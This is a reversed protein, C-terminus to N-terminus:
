CYILGFMKPRGVNKLGAFLGAGLGITGLSGLKSTIKDIINIAGNGFDVIGKVFNSDLIHNAFEQFSAELRKLSYEIGKEYEEQEKLASGTSNVATETARRATDFNSMLASVINGQRKGAILETISAQQIDTLDQWKTALEDLIQYTSKFTDKDKMIDVGSLALIEEQLKATSEAMGDTELGLDEMETKAGRIRMSITKYANGISDPDQVVANAATVLGITEELTNGAAYMSSASRQLAEGIGASNIAETNAVENFADIVHIAEDATLKFGQLTSILSENATSMDIGDGVNTYLTAIEALKKSDPLSYGLRSWDATANIMDNVASGYKKASDAAENFYKKIESKSADSVKRLEVMAKNVEYVEKPIRQLQYVLAMIGSSVSFWQTFSAGAEKFQDKLNKGLKGLGRQTADINKLEKEIYNLRDVSVRGNSLERYYANLSEKAEKSARTNKSLWNQINTSLRTQKNLNYYQTADNKLQGYATRVQNLAVIREKDSELIAQNKSLISDFENSDMVRYLKSQADTLVKVKQAVEEDTFGLDKLKKIETDLQYDYNLNQKNKGEMSLQIKNVQAEISQREKASNAAEKEAQAIERTHAIDNQKAENIRLQNELANKSSNVNQEWSNDTLGNKSLQNYNYRNREELAKIQRNIEKTQEQDATLLKNKLSYITKNNDIIRQYYTVRNSEDTNSAKEAKAVNQIENKVQVIKSQLIGYEQSWEITGQSYQNVKQQQNYLEKISNAVDKPKSALSQYDLEIGKLTSDMNKMDNIANIFPNLSKGGNRLNSVINNYTVELTNMSKNLDEISHTNGLGDIAEQVAKFEASNILVGGSKKNFQALFKQAKASASDFNQELKKTHNIVNQIVEEVDSVSLDFNINQGQKQLKSIEVSLENHLESALKKISGKTKGVTGSTDLIVDIKAPDKELEKKLKDFGTKIGKQELEAVIKLIFDNNDM